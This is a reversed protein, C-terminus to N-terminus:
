ETERLYRELYVQQISALLEPAKGGVPKGDVACAGRGGQTTSSVVIEDATMLENLTFEREEVPIGLKGCSEILLMRTIGPLIFNDTPHTIFRGDKIISINSHAGETVIDGRHFVCEDCGAEYTRQAAMVNPLLNITKIDCHLFRTDEVTILRMSGGTKYEAMPKLTIWLNSKADQPFRHLRLATGRTVQWYLLYCGPEVKGLMDYLIGAMEERSCPLEMRLKSASRWMRDIHEDLTFIRNNRSVAAEYVGDGFYCARDNMPVVMESLPGWKGNYYGLEKM